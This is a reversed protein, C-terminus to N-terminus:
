ADNIYDLLKALLAGPNDSHSWHGGPLVDVTVQSNLGAIRLARDVDAQLYSDSQEAIVLHVNVGRPPHEVTSWLDCALYDLVLARIENLDLSFRVHDNEREVSGALWEGLTRTKGAAVIAKVFDTKSPFERPLSELVDIVDLPSGDGRVAEKLGPASDISVVHALSGLGGLRAVELAVKGGFSHGAIARVPLEARVALSVVDRAAAELSPAPSRKPSRGHGRLDILWATWNPRAEIFRKAITRLNVGRGLIGHLFLITRGAHLGDLRDFALDITSLPSMVIQSLTDHVTAGFGHSM